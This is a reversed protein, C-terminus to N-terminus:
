VVSPDGRGASVPSALRVILYARAAAVADVLADGAALRCAIATSLACGTGHITGDVQARAIPLETRTGSVTLVDVIADDTVEASKVLVADFASTDLVEAEARNPTILTVHDALLALASAPDGDYFAINGRTPALVPDWVAVAATLALADAIAQAAKQTPVLGIKIAAIEVDTLLAALQEGLTSAPVPNVARVGVTNQETLATAVGVPRMGHADVVRVDAILGAGGSPDLGSILLVNKM